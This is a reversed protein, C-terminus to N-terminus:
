SQRFWEKTAHFTSLWEPAESKWNITKPLCWTCCCCYTAQAGTSCSTLQSDSGALSSFRRSRKRIHWFFFCRSGRTDSPPTWCTFRKRWMQIRTNYSRRKRRAMPDVNSAESVIDQAKLRQFHGCGILFLFLLQLVLIMQYSSSESFFFRLSWSSSAAILSSSFLNAYISYLM